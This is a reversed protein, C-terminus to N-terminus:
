KLLRRLENIIVSPTRTPETLLLPVGLEGAAAAGALADPFQAGTALLVTPVNPAFTDVSIAAATAYRNSGSIRRVTTVGLAKLEAEIGSSLAATGGVLIVQSPGLTKVAGAISAPLRDPNSLLVAGDVAAAAAGASLADAFGLGTALYVVDAGNAFASTAVAAATGYRDAGALRTAKGSTAYGGLSNVVSQSIVATGGAVFIEQPRLRALEARTEAPIGDRTVLLLPGGAKAAAAGASLADAYGTGVAIFAAAVGPKFIESSVRAATAYRNAGAIRDPLGGLGGAIDFLAADSVAAPGGLVTVDNGPGKPM